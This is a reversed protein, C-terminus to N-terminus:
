HKQRPTRLTVNTPPWSSTSQRLIKRRVSYLATQAKQLLYALQTIWDLAKACEAQSIQSDIHELLIDELTHRTWRGNWIDGAGWSGARESYEWMHDEAYHNIINKINTHKLGERQITDRVGKTEM